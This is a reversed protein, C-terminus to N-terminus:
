VLSEKSPALCKSLLVYFFLLKLLLSEKKKSLRMKCLITFKICEDGSSRSSSIVPFLCHINMYTVQLSDAVLSFLVVCSM